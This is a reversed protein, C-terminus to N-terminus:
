KNIEQIFFFFFFHHVQVKCDSKMENKLSMQKTNLAKLSSAIKKKLDFNEHKNSVLGIRFNIFLFFFFYKAIWGM